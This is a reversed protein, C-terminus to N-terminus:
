DQNGHPQNAKLNELNPVPEAPAAAAPKQRARLREIEQRTIGKESGPGPPLVEVSHVNAGTEPPSTRASEIEGLTVGRGGPTSPPLVQVDLSATDKQTRIPEEAERNQMQESFNQSIATQSRTQDSAM